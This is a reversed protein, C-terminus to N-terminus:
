LRQQKARWSAYEVYHDLDDHEVTACVNSNKNRLQAIEKKLHENECEIRKSEEELKNIKAELEKIHREKRERFARQRYPTCSLPQLSSAPNRIM